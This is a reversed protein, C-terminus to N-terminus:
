ISAYILKLLSALRSSVQYLILISLQKCMRM